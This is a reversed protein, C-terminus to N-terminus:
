RRRLTLEGQESITGGTRIEYRYRGPIAAEADAFDDPFRVCLWDDQAPLPKELDYRRGEPNTVHFEAPSSGGDGGFTRACLRVAFTVSTPAGPGPANSEAEDKEESTIPAAPFPPDDLAVLRLDHPDYRVAIREGPQFRPIAIRSIVSRPIEARFSERDAPLVEVEMGVVPDDNLTIGTDWVRLIEAEASAGFQRLPRAVSEGTMHDIM